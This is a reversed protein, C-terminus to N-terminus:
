NRLSKCLAPASKALQTNIKLSDIFYPDALDPPLIADVPCEPECVGCEICTHPCIVLQMPVERFADVPCVDVCRTSKCSVCEAAVVYPM